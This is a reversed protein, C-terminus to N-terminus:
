LVFHCHIEFSEPLLLHVNTDHIKQKIRGLLDNHVFFVGQKQISVGALGYTSDKYLYLIADLINENRM